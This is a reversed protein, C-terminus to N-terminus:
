FWRNRLPRITTSGVEGFLSRRVAAFEGSTRSNAIRAALFRVSPRSDFLSEPLCFSKAFSVVKSPSHKAFREQALEFRGVLERDECAAGLRKHVCQVNLLIFGREGRVMRGSMM